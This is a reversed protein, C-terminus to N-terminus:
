RPTVEVIARMWPHICCQFRHNGAELGSVRAHSGPAIDISTACAPAPALGKSLPPVKGGGFEVVETFTHVRGGANRVQLSQGKGIVTFSPDNRWSPHGIVATPGLSSNLEADFEALSVFGRSLACGGISNWTLDDPDCDDKIAIAHGGAGSALSASGSAVAVADGAADPAVVEGRSSDRGCSAALVLLIAPFGFRHSTM